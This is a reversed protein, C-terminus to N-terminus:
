VKLNALNPYLSDVVVSTVLCGPIRYVYKEVFEFFNKLVPPYELNYVFYIKFLLDMAAVFDSLNERNIINSDVVVYYYLQEGELVILYPQIQTSSKSRKQEVFDKLSTGLQLM